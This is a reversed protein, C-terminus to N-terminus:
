SAAVAGDGTAPAESIRVACVKFEPIKGFPDLADTTLVNAAAERFHFPIFVSGPSVRESAEAALAIAGRRSEVLVREGDGIGLRALDDPHIEVSAAPRIAHLARARRTMTGTHWHELLRGTNLIFPYAEDPPESEPAYPCPVFRGRGDATPFDEGFLVQIGDDELDPCPWLKGTLGLNEYTLGAYSPALSTFEAFVDAPSEYAMPYGFAASLDCVIRWDERAEGPPELAKRGVQVRRDTNTYTGTKEFFSSAPLIVDAFEATETLFIDQVVLFELSALARRVKNTNPDSVFPNEGMMYMGRIKGALAGHMIEVVTLGTEPDLEVGWADEFKRRVDPDTVSQYAPYVIPILGADSAGQVNNQGRLPHLGTGPRGVNGTMLMLSILCRANDTGHTHQSIGMGWFVMAAGASGFLRAARRIDDARVGCIEAAAEPPTEAVLAKLAEFGETRSEIFAHDLLDEEILVHMWANYLAVDTGGRIQLFIEAHDAIEIRRSDVVILKTRGARVAQKIFTAAVPHNATTNSGTILALDARAVDAFVNTVAGSGITELLAAVSSAHCLRTCHDVNNTGFGARVLKQFLYAEENSCKASGFGALASPGHEDRIGRLRSGALAIAEDWTAERFHPLVDDYNVLGGPKRKTGDSERVEPSLPGKPYAEDRRILPVTLRQPHSAYDFGYRGKVCLRQHNVPSDRGDAYAIRNRGEDVHYTIACGVGCYPCVSDVARLGSKPTAGAGSAPATLAEALGVLSLAGTPCVKECEGCAVCSSAGMADDLDFGIRTGYGKGTRGIVANVQVDDCARICRDCLICSQHDVRIVPSSEDIPRGNGAPIGGVPATRAAAGTGDSREVAAAGAPPWEVGYERALALLEDDGTKAGAAEVADAPYDALLLEVLGKRCAEIKESGTVVTMGEEARRVCSATLRTEGVDVLCVRCVGVPPLRPDHCLVPIEIGALRAAEWLTSGAPAEVERGDITLRVTAEAAPAAARAAAPSTPGAPTADPM